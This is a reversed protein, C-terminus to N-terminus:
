PVQLPSWVQRQLLGNGAVYAVLDGTQSPDLTNARERQLYRARCGWPDLALARVPFALRQRRVEREVQRGVIWEHVTGDADAGALYFMQANQADTASLSALPSKLKAVVRYGRGLFTDSLLLRTGDALAFAPAGGPLLSGPRPLNLPALLAPQDFAPEAAVGPDTSISVPSASCGLASCSYVAHDAQDLVAISVPDKVPTDFSVAFAGPQKPPDRLEGGQGFSADQTGDATFRVLRGHGTDAVYIRGAADAAVGAPKSFGTLTRQLKLNADFVKVEDGDAVLVFRTYTADDAGLVVPGEESDRVKLYDANFRAADYSVFIARPDSVTAEALVNAPAAATVRGTAYIWAGHQQRRALVAYTGAREYRYTAKQNSRVAADFVGDGDFDLQWDADSEDAGYARFEVSLPAAGSDPTAVLTAPVVSTGTSLVEVGVGETGATEDPSRAIALLLIKTKGEALPVRPAIFRGDPRLVVPVTPVALHGAPRDYFELVPAGTVLVGSWRELDIWGTVSVWQGILQANAAPQEIVVGTTGLSSPPTEKAPAAPAPRGCTGCGLMSALVMAAVAFRM